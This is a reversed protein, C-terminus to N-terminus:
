DVQDKTLDLIQGEGRLASILQEMAEQAEEMTWFEAFNESRGNVVFVIQPLGRIEIGIFSCMKTNVIEGDKTIAWM